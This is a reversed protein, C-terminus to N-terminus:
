RLHTGYAYTSVVVGSNDLLELADGCNNWISSRNNFSYPHGPETYVQISSGAALQTGESFRYQQDQDNKDRLQWSGVDVNSAGRNAIEVYEQGSYQVTTIAVPGTNEIGSKQEDAVAKCNGTGPTGDAQPTAEAVPTAKADDETGDAYKEKLRFTGLQSLLVDYPSPNEIHLEFVAREFYQVTYTKDDLDSQEEFEDSIPYGQQALGGHEQWYKLFIGGVYHKTEQFFRGDTNARQGPAGEEGYKARYRFTGLQMLLVDYPPKNDSHREFVAREFYQVKHRRGDLESTEFIEESIPYGQQALGGHELWYELFVGRLTHGTEPFTHPTPSPTVAAPALMRATGTAFLAALCVCIAVCLLCLSLTRHIPKM